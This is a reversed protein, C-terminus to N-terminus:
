KAFGGRLMAYTDDLHQPIVRVNGMVPMFNTDGVWRPVLHLHVHDAIGAGAAGGQNIGVNFGHPNMAETLVTQSRRLLRMMETTTDEELGTIADVHAYPVIMLHGNNYPYVNMVVFCHEGRGLIYTEADNDLTPLRCFVCAPNEIKHDHVAAIYSMRWPAWMIDPGSRGDAPETM